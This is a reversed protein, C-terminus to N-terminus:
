GDATLGCDESLVQLIRDDSMPIDWLASELCLMAYATEYDTKMKKAATVIQKRCGTPLAELGQM